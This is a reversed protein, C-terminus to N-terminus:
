YGDRYDRKIKGNLIIRSLLPLVSIDFHETNLNERWYICKWNVIFLPIVIVIFFFSM